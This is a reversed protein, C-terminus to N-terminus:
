KQPGSYIGICDYFGEYISPVNMHENTLRRLRQLEKKSKEDDLGLYKKYYYTNLLGNVFISNSKNLSYSWGRGEEQTQSQPNNKKYHGKRISKGKECKFSRYITIEDDMNEFIDMLMKCNMIGERLSSKGGMINLYDVCEM